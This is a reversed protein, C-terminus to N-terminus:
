TATNSVERPLLNLFFVLSYARSSYYSSLLALRSHKLSGDEIRVTSSDTSPIEEGLYPILLSKATKCYCGIQYLLAM